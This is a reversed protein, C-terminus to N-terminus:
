SCALFLSLPTLSFALHKQWGAVSHYGASSVALHEPGTPFPPQYTMFGATTIAGMEVLSMIGRENQLNTTAGGHCCQLLLESLRGCLSQVGSEGGGLMSGSMKYMYVGGLMSVM